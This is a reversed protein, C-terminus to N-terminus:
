WRCIPTPDALRMRVRMVMTLSGWVADYARVLAVIGGTCRVERGTRVYLSLSVLLYMVDVPFREEEPELRLRHLAFGMERVDRQTSIFRDAAMEERLTDYPRRVDDQSGIEEMLDVLRDVDDLLEEYWTEAVAM